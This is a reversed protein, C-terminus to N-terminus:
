VSIYPSVLDWKLGGEELYECHVGLASIERINRYEDDFFVMDSYSIGFRERLNKFHSLKSGPFIQPHKFYADIEFMKLLQNAIEPSSTRSAVSVPKNREKLHMLIKLVDPYLKIERGDVDLICNSNKTYPPYTCDCWTGGADWVTFDLDFVFLKM